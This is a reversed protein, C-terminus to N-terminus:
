HDCWADASIGRREARLAGHAARAARQEAAWGVGQNCLPCHTVSGDGGRLQLAAMAGRMTWWALLLVMTMGVFGAFACAILERM